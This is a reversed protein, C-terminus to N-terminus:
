SARCVQMSRIAIHPLILGEAGDMRHMRIDNAGM